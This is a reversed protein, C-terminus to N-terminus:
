LLLSEEGLVAQEVQSRPQRSKHSERQWMAYRSLIAIWIIFGEDDIRFTTPMGGRHQGSNTRNQLGSLMLQHAVHETLNLLLFNPLAPVTAREERKNTIVYLYLVFM